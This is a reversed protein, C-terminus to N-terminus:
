FSFLLYGSVSQLKYYGEKKLKEEKKDVALVDLSQKVNEVEISDSSVKKVAKGNIERGLYRIFKQKIKGGKRISEVEALYIKKGVKVKRIFSM